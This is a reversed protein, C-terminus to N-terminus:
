PGARLSMRRQFDRWGPPTQAEARRLLPAAEAGRGALLLAVGAANIQEAFAPDQRDAGLPEALSPSLSLGMERVIARAGAEDGGRAFVMALLATARPPLPGVVRLADLLARASALGEPGRALSWRAVTLTLAASWPSRPLRPLAQMALAVAREFQSRRADIWAATLLADPDELAGGARAHELAAAADEVRAVLRLLVAREAWRPADGPGAAELAELAALPRVPSPAIWAPLDGWRFGALLDRAASPRAEPWDASAARPALSLALVALAVRRM